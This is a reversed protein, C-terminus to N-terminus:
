AHNESKPYMFTLIDKNHTVSKIKTSQMTYTLKLESNQAPQWKIFLM